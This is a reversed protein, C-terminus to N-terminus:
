RWEHYNAIKIQLLWQISIIDHCIQVAVYNYSRTIFHLSHNYVNLLYRRDKKDLASVTKIKVTECCLNIKM